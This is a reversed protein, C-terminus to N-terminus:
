EAQPRQDLKLADLSASLQVRFPKPNGAKILRLAEQSEPDSRRELAQIARPSDGSEFASIAFFYAPFSSTPYRKAADLAAEELRRPDRNRLYDAYITRRSHEESSVARLEEERALTSSFKEWFPDNANLRNEGAIRFQALVLAQNTLANDPELTQLREALAITMPNDARQLNAWLKDQILRPDSLEGPSKDNTVWDTVAARLGVLSFLCVPRNEAKAESSSADKATCGQEFRKWAASLWDKANDSHCDSHRPLHDLALNGEVVGRLDLQFLETWLEECAKSINKALVVRPTKRIQPLLPPTGQGLPHSLSSRHEPKEERLDRPDEPAKAVYFGFVLLGVLLPLTLWHKFKGGEIM